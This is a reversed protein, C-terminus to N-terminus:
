MERDSVDSKVDPNLDFKLFDVWFQSGKGESSEVGVAGGLQQAGRKVIALGIGTGPYSEIGHLRQFVDFIRRQHKSAIGLGNDTIWLRIHDGSDQYRINIVPAVDAAVFKISNTLLNTLIQMVIHHNGYIKPLPEATSSVPPPCITANTEKVLCSLDQLAEALVKELRLPQKSIETRSLRSYSLLDLILGDMSAAARVIRQAYEAGLDDLQDAYDELLAQAFGQMARLPARLDHSVTYTFAELEENAAELQATRQRVRGELEQNLQRIKQESAKLEDEVQKRDSIDEVMSIFYKPDGTPSRVLSVTLNAWVCSGDKRIYRKEMAYRARQGDLMQQVYALDLDLDDPHTIDQFTQARLEQESYGVIDCLRQNVRLWQGGTGVHAIGVAAQEFTARFREESEQLRLNQQKLKEAALNDANADPTSNLVKESM